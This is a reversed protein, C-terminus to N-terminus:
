TVADWFDSFPRVAFVPCVTNNLEWHGKVKAGQIWKHQRLLGLLLILAKFQSKDFKKDGALCIGIAWRNFGYAHAGAEALPRGSEIYGNQNIFFHYGIDDWGNEEMHIKRIWAANQGAYDTASHHLVILDIKRM